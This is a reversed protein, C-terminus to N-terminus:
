APSLTSRLPSGLLEDTRGASSEDMGPSSAGHGQKRTRALVPRKFLTTNQCTLRKEARRKDSVESFLNISRSMVKERTRAIIREIRLPIKVNRCANGALHVVHRARKSNCQFIVLHLCTSVAALSCVSCDLYTETRPRTQHGDHTSPMERAGTRESM